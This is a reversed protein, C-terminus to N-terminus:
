WRLLLAGLFAGALAPIAVGLVYWLALFPTAMEPCHLAYVAAAAAGAALGASGGALRPRTPAMTRMVRLLAIFLPISLLTINFPCSRWSDGFILTARAEPPAALLVAGASTWILLLLAALLLPARGARMGPRALRSALQLAALAAAAAVGAKAWFMPMLLAEALDTRVGLCSAMLLTAGALGWGLAPAFRRADSTADLAQGSANSALMAILDDTKM